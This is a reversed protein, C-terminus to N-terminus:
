YVTQVTSIVYSLIRRRIVDILLSVILVFGSFIIAALLSQYEICTLMKRVLGFGASGGSLLYVSFVSPSLFLVLRWFRSGTSVNIRIVLLFLSM